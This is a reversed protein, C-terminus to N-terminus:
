ITSEYKEVTETPQMEVEEIKIIELMHQRDAEWARLRPLPIGIVAALCLLGGVM